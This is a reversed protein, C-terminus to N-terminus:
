SGTDRKGGGALNGILYRAVEMAFQAGSHKQAIASIDTYGKHLIVGNLLILTAIALAQVLRSAM